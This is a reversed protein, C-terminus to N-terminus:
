LQDRPVSPEHIGTRISLVASDVRMDRDAIWHAPWRSCDCGTETSATFSSQRQKSSGDTGWRSRCLQGSGRPLSSQSLPHLCCTPCVLLPLPSYIHAIDLPLRCREARHNGFTRARAGERVTATQLMAAFYKMISLMTYSMSSQTDADLRNCEPQKHARTWNM